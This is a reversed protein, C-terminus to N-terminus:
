RVRRRIIGGKLKEFPTIFQRAADYGEGIEYPSHADSGFTINVGENRLKEYFSKLNPTYHASNYEVGINNRILLPIASEDMRMGYAFPHAIIVDELKSLIDADVLINSFHLLYFDFGAPIKGAPYYLEVGCLTRISFSSVTDVYDKLEKKSIKPDYHIVFGVLELNKMKAYLEYMEITGEDAHLPYHVHFDYRM